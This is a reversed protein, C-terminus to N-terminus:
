SRFLQSSSQYCSKSSHNSIQDTIVNEDRTGWSVDNMNSVSYIILLLYMAPVTLYYILGTPLCWFEQPHLIAAIIFSAATMLLFIGSPSLWGDESLELVIAVLVAMMIISYISSM